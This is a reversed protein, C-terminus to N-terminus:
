TIAGLGLMFVSGSTSRRDDLSGGWDSNTYCVLLMELKGQIKKYLTPKNESKQFGQHIFYEDIKSYWARPAQRLGYLAKRLRYVLQEHGEKIFGEPQEVYITEQLEGNLFALKVDLQYM